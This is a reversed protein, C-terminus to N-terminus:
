PNRRFSTCSQHSYPLFRERECVSERLREGGGGEQGGERQGGRGRGIGEEVEQTTELREQLRLHESMLASIYMRVETYQVYM